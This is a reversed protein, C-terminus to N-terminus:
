PDPEELPSVEPVFVVVDVQRGLDCELVLNHMQTIRDRGADKEIPVVVPAPEEALLRANMTGPQAILDRNWPNASRGQGHLFWFSLVPGRALENAVRHGLSRGNGGGPGAGGPNPAHADMDDKLLHTSGALLAIKAGPDADLAAKVRDFM